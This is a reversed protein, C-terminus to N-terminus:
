VLWLSCDAMDIFMLGLKIALWIIKNIKARLPVKCLCHSLPFARLPVKCLCHSLPFARLPVKSVSRSHSHGSHYRVSLALPFARLPVKCCHSLISTICEQSCVSLGIISIMHPVVASDQLVDSSSCSLGTVCSLSVSWTHFWQRTRYCMPRHVLFDPLVLCHYQDHTSGSGLGTVCRVIFLFTRYCLVIISIMHPVVASDQLVDSSSCSLGTVCSLSVSWTHFWQRTRYCMPCHVLFDPLVLCHYQDHTSGSGLGTVCRVIFLFTRYCLVIISIMHPVVASDQLVDSLSCSLGTVCSLSVSWTHFWQRTRYCMPRHVLFDPLVLCHYQDHTSGGCLGTVCRVIFLFTRYCLVIISIMHPVVASDQLVDSSSCSLGTVCSLSVSWTHFWRLTRYCMPRHVLFDPVVLRNCYCWGVVIITRSRRPPTCRSVQYIACVHALDSVYITKLCRLCAEVYKLNPNNIDTANM